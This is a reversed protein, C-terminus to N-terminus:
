SHGLAAKLGIKRILAIRETTTKPLEPRPKAAPAGAGPPAAAAAARRAERAQTFQAATRGKAPAAPAGPAGVRAGDGNRGALEIGQRRFRESVLLQVDEPEIQNIGLRECREKVDKVADRFLLERKEGTINTPILRDIEAAVREANAAMAKREENRVRLTDRLKLRDRELEARLTRLAQADELVDALGNEAGGKRLREQIADLVNAGEGAAPEAFLLQMAIETRVTPPVHELVFGTPDVAIMDEVDALEQRVQQIGRREQRVQRGIVAENQLRNLRNFTEEDPAELVIAEEGKEEMGELTVDFRPQNGEGEGEGGEGAEAAAEGAGEAGAAGAEGAAAAEGAGVAAEAAAAEAGPAATAGATEAPPVLPKGERLRDRAAEIAGQTGVPAAPAGPAAAPTGAPAASGAASGQDGKAEDTM